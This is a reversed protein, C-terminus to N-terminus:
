LGSLKIVMFYERFADWSDFHQYKDDYRRGHKDIHFETSRVWLKISQARKAARILSPLIKITHLGHHEPEREGHPFAYLEADGLLNPKVAFVFGTLGWKKLYNDFEQQRITKREPM